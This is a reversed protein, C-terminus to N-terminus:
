TRTTKRLKVWGALIPIVFTLAYYLYVDLKYYGDPPALAKVIGLYDGLVAIALWIVAVGLSYPLNDGGIKRFAVWLTFLTAFPTIIWGIDAPPVLFFLIIGLVYGILWLALGWGFSDFLFKQNMLQQVKTPRVLGPQFM